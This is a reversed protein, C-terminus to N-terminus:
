TRPNMMELYYQRRATGMALVEEESWGYFRALLAVDYMLRQALSAVETWFFSGIDLYMRSREGCAGCDLDLPIDALPDLEAMRESLAEVAQEPLEHTQVPQSDRSAALVCRRLLLATGAEPDPSSAVAALDRSGPLRFRIQVGAAELTHASDSAPPQEQALIQRVDLEFDLRAECSACSAYARLEPGFTKDHLELLLADRAGVSLGTLEGSAKEPLAVTLLALSRELASSDRGLGWAEVIGASTLGQM